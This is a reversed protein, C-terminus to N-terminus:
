KRLISRATKDVVAVDRRIRNEGPGVIACRLDIVVVKAVGVEHAVLLSPAVRCSHMVRRLARIRVAVALHIGGGSASHQKHRTYLSNTGRQSRIFSFM